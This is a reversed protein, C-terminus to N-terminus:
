FFQVILTKKDDSESIPKLAFLGRGWLAHVTPALLILNYVEEQGKELIGQPFLKAEWTTIKKEPWFVRLQNWFEYRPGTKNEEKQKILHYPYIYAVEIMKIGTLVCSFRDREEARKKINADRPLTTPSDLTKQRKPPPPPTSPSPGSNSAISKQPTPTKPTSPRSQYRPSSGWHRVMQSTHYNIALIHREHLLEELAGLDCIQCAAWFHPTVSRIVEQLRELLAVREPSPLNFDEM